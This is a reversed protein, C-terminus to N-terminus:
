GEITLCLQLYMSIKGTRHSYCCPKMSLGWLFQTINKWNLMSIYWAGGTPVISVVHYIFIYIYLICIIYHMYIIYMYYIHTYILVYIYISYVILTMSSEPHNGCLIGMSKGM